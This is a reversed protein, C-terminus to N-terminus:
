RALLEFSHIHTHTNIGNSANAPAHAHVHPPQKWEVNISIKISSSWTDVIKYAAGNFLKMTQITNNNPM